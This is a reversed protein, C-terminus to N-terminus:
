HWVLEINIKKGKKILKKVLFLAIKTVLISHKIKKKNLKYKKLLKICKKRTPLISILDKVKNISSVFFDPHATKIYAKKLFGTPVVVSKIGAKHSERVDMIHDGVYLAESKKLKFKRLADLMADHKAKNYIDDDAILLDYKANFHKLVLKAVKSTNYTIVAVKIGSEKLKPLIDKAFFKTKPLSDKYAKLFIKDMGKKDVGSEDYLRNIADKYRSNIFKKFRRKTPKLKAFKCLEKFSKKSAPMSYVLTFDFDFFVAKIM